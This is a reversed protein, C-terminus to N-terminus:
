FYFLLRVTRCYKFYFLMVGVKYYNKRSTSMLTKCMVYAFDTKSDETLRFHLDGDCVQHNRVVAQITGKARCGKQSNEYQLGVYAAANGYKSVNTHNRVTCWRGTESENDEESSPDDESEDDGYFPEDECEARVREFAEKSNKQM